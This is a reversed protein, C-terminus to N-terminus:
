GNDVEKTLFVAVNVDYDLYMHNSPGDVAQVRIGVSHFDGFILRVSDGGLSTYENEPINLNNDKMYEIEEPKLQFPFSAIGTIKGSVVGGLFEYAIMDGTELSRVPAIAVSNFTRM